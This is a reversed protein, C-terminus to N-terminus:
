LEVISLHSKYMDEISTDGTQDGQSLMGGLKNIVLLHNDEDIIEPIFIDKHTTHDKTNNM